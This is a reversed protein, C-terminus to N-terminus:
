LIKYVKKIFSLPKRRISKGNSFTYIGQRERPTTERYCGNAKLKYGNREMMLAYSKFDNTGIAVKDYTFSEKRILDEKIKNETILLNLIDKLIRRKAMGKKYILCSNIYKLDFSIINVKKFWMILGSSVKNLERQRNEGRCKSLDNLNFEM